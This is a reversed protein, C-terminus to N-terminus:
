NGNAHCCEYRFSYSALLSYLVTSIDSYCSLLYRCALPILNDPNCRTMAKVLPAPVEDLDGDATLYTVFFGRIGDSHSLQAALREVLEEKNDNSSDSSLREVLNAAHSVQSM